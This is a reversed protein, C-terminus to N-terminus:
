QNFCQTSTNNLAPFGNTLGGMQITMSANRAVRGQQNTQITQATFSGDLVYSSGTFGYDIPALIQSGLLVYLVVRAIIKM